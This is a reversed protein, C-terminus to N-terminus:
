RLNFRVPVSVWVAVPRGSVRAPRFTWQKVAEIAAVNLLPISKIVEASRVRGDQGVLARLVVTGEVGAEFALSPYEPKPQLIPVPAEEYYPVVTTELASRSDGTASSAGGAKGGSVEEKDAGIWAAPPVDVVETVPVIRAPDLPQEAPAVSERPRPVIPPPTSPRPPDIVSHDLMDIAQDHPDIYAIPPPLERPLVAWLLAYITLAACSAIASSPFMRSAYRRRLPGSPRRPGVTEPVLAFPIPM